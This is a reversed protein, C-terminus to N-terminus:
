GGIGFIRGAARAPAPDLGLAVLGGWVGAAAADIVPLGLEAELPAMLPLGPLNTSWILIADPRALAAERVLAAIDAPALSAAALNDRLGFGRSAVLEGGLGRAAPGNEAPDGSGVMGLRRAGLARLLRATALAATTAPCGAAEAITTCLAEDAALGLAAGRTANWCVAGAAAHGLMRAAERYPAADYGDKPQGLGAGHYPIRAFCSDLAPFHGLLALTAREVSRNSSPLITGLALRM